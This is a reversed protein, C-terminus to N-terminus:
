CGSPVFSLDGEQVPTEAEGIMARGEGAVFVLIQDHRENVEGGIEGGPPISM